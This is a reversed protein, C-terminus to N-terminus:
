VDDDTLFTRPVPLVEFRLHEHFKLLSITYSRCKCSIAPTYFSPFAIDFPLRVGASTSVKAPSVKGGHAAILRVLGARRMWRPPRSTAVGDAHNKRSISHQPAGFPTAHSLQCATAEHVQPSTM